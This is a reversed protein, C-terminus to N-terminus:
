KSGAFEFDGLKEDLRSKNTSTSLKDFYFSICGTIKEFPITYM